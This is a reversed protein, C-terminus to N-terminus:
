AGERTGWAARQIMGRMIEFSQFLTDMLNIMMGTSV